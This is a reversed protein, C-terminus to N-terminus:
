YNSMLMGISEVHVKTNDCHWFNSHVKMRINRYWLLFFTNGIFWMKDSMFIISLVFFRVYDRCDSCTGFFRKLFICGDSNSQLTIQKESSLKSAVQTKAHQNPAQKQQSLWDPTQWNHCWSSSFYNVSYVFRSKYHFLYCRKSTAGTKVVLKCMSHNKNVLTSM